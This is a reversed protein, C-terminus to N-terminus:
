EVAKIKTITNPIKFAITFGTKIRKVKGIVMRVKPIKRKIM